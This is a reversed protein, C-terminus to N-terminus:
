GGGSGGEGLRQALLEVIPPSFRFARLRGGSGLRRRRGWTLAAPVRPIASPRAPNAGIRRVVAAASRFRIPLASLELACISDLDVSRSAAPRSAAPKGHHSPNPGRSRRSGASISTLAGHHM